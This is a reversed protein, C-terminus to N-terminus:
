RRREQRSTKQKRKRSSDRTTGSRLRSEAADSHSHVDNNRQWEVWAAVKRDGITRPDPLAGRCFVRVSDIAYRGVGPLKSLDCGPRWKASIARLYHDRKDALGLPQLCGKLGADASAMLTPTPWRNLLRFVVPRAVTASCLNLCVCAVLVRWENLPEGPSFLGVLDAQIMHPAGGFEVAFRGAGIWANRADDGYPTGYVVRTCSTNLLLKTCSSCPFATVYATSIAYPDACQLIANQEAHVARCQDLGQGSPADIGPCAQPFSVRLGVANCHEAGAAVGNYGTALVHKRADVLVCGVSRRVCTSRSAALRAMAMFYEDVEPRM